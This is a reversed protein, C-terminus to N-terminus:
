FDSRTIGYIGFIPVLFIGITFINGQANVLTKPNDTTFAAIICCVLITVLPFMLLAFVADEKRLKM